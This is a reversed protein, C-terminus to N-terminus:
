FENMNILRYPDDSYESEFELMQEAAKISDQIRKQEMRDQEAKDVLSIDIYWLEVRSGLEAGPRGIFEPSQRYVIARSMNKINDYHEAGINLSASLIKKRANAPSQGIVYPVQAKRTGDGRGVVLDIMSEGELQRGPQIKRGKYRQEIVVPHPDDIFTLKGGHLGANELQTMANRVSLSHLDPVITNKPHYATTTLYIKRGIKIMAGSDPDQKLILGGKQDAKYISDIVVYQVGLENNVDLEDVYKGVVYPVEYEKGVRGYKKLCAFVIITILVSALIAILLHLVWPYKKFFSFKSM